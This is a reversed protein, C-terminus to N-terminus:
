SANEVAIERGKCAAFALADALNNGEDNSHGKVKVMTVDHEDMLGLLATWLDPNALRGGKKRWGNARWREAWGENIANVLHASDSFLSVACRRKLTKLAEVAATLEMRQNTTDAESGFIQREHRGYRLVAAWGGPGPNGSCSGDTWISVTARPLAPGHTRSAEPAEEPYADGSAVTARENSM